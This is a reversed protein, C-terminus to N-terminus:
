DEESGAIPPNARGRSWDVKRTIWMTFGLILFLGCSGMLLSWDEAKLLTFLFGYLALTGAGLIAARLWGSLASAAYGSILITTGGAAIWYAIDFGLHESIALTLLYFLCNALGILAYQVPHLTKDLFTEFLFFALFTLVVFLFAYKLSRETCDYNDVPQLMRLGLISVAEPARDGQWHMPVDLNLSSVSWTADFGDARLNRTAPLFRGEFSPSAWDSSLSVNTTRALPLISLSGQGRLSLQLRFPLSQGPRAAVQPVSGALRISPTRTTRDVEYAGDNRVPEGDSTRPRAAGAPTLEITKGGVELVPPRALAQIDGGDLNIQAENWRPVAGKLGLAEPDPLKFEGSLDLGALYLPVRFIGRKRVESELKGNVNLVEPWAQMWVTVTRERGKADKEVTTCPVDLRIAGLTQEQGWKESVEKIVSKSRMEREHVMSQVMTVPVLLVLALLALFGLRFFGGFRQVLSSATSPTSQM